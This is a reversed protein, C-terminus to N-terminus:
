FVDGQVVAPTKHRITRTSSAMHVTQVHLGSENTDLELGGVHQRESLYRFTAEGTQCKNCGCSAM